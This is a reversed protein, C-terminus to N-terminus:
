LAHLIFEVGRVLALAVISAEAKMSLGILRCTDDWRAVRLGGRTFFYTFFVGLGGM